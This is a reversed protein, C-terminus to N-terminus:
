NSRNVAKIRCRFLQLTKDDKLLRRRPIMEVRHGKDIVIEKVCKHKFHDCTRWIPLLGAYDIAALHVMRTESAEM